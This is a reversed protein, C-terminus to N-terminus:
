LPPLGLAEDVRNLATIDEEGVGRLLDIATARIQGVIMILPLPPQPQRTLLRGATRVADVAAAETRAVYGDAAEDQGGLDAALAAGAARVAETLSRLAAVLEPPSQAPQRTLAVGARALVRVNRVAYDIQRSSADLAHVRGLHHRRRVHLRLTEGAAQVATRLQDVVADLQRARDLAALAATEDGRRLAETIETLLEAITGFTRRSEAVLPALPRRAGVLQSVALAVVGGILADVFRFPVLSGGPPPVVVLYLASVTAQVMTVSSAGFAAVVAVTLLVVVFVTWSTRGLGQVVLDAVLVGAAVGLIVEVARRIRQGRAQGLVILAAAPAFFPEPHDLVTTAVAWALTAAVTAEVAPLWNQRLRDAVLRLWGIRVVAGRVTM